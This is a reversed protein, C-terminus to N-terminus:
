NRRAPCVYSSYGGVLTEIADVGAQSFRRRGVNAAGVHGAMAKDDAVKVLDLSFSMVQSTAGLDKKRRGSQADGQSTVIINRPPERVGRM